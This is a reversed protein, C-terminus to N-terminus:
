TTLDDATGAVRDPGASRLTLTAPVLTFPQGFGDGSYEQGLGMAARDADWDGTLTGGLELFNAMTEVIVRMRQRTKRLGPVAAHVAVRLEEAAFGDDRGDSGRSHVTATGAAVDVAYVYPLGQGWADLLATGGVGTQLYVGAFTPLDLAAPFAQRDFWHDELAAAIAALETEVTARREADILAGTLPVATGLLVGLVALVVILELLTFGAVRRQRRRHGRPAAAGTRPSGRRRSSSTTM